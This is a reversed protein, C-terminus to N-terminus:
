ACSESLGLAKLDRVVAHPDDRLERATCRVVMRGPATLRRQRALDDEWHEVEMHFGGDVELVLVTGDPLVWECDTFRQRGRSDRRGSQRRPKPLGFQRCIRGVDLEALSQAGGSIDLLATRFDKARRLPRLDAMQELLDEATTLRQQVVAALLGLATRPSREYAAFLLAAPEVRMVPLDGRMCRWGGMSRRTRVVRVAPPVSELHVHDPATVTVHDRDWNRLGHLQLATLGGVLAHRGVHLVALWVEQDRSLVGTTTSVVTSSRVAWRRAAVQNRVADNDFGLELLQRRTVLCGQAAALRTVEDPRRQM